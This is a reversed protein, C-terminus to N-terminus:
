RAAGEIESNPPALYVYRGSESTKIRPALDGLGDQKLKAKLRSVARRLAEDSYDDNGIALAIDERSVKRGKARALREAIRFRDTDGLFCPIDKWRITFPETADLVLDDGLPVFLGVRALLRYELELETEEWAKIGDPPVPRPWDEQDSGGFLMAYGREAWESLPSWVHEEWDSDDLRWQAGKGLLYASDRTTLWTKLKSLDAEPDRTAERHARLRHRNHDPRYGRPVNAKVVAAKYLRMEAIIKAIRHEPREERDTAALFAITQAVLEKIDIVLKGDEM